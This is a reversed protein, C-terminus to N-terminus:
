LEVKMHVQQLVKPFSQVIPTHSSKLVLLPLPLSLNFFLPTKVIPSIRLCTNKFPYLGKSDAWGQTTSDPVGLFIWTACDSGSFYLPFHRLLDQKGVFPIPITMTGNEEEKQITSLHYSTHSGKEWSGVLM